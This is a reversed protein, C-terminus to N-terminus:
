PTTCTLYPNFHGQLITQDRSGKRLRQERKRQIGFKKMKTRLTSPNVGLLESAGGPGDIKGNTADLAAQIHLTIAEDLKKIKRNSGSSAQLGGLRQQFAFHGYTLHDNNEGWSQILAREVVNALERVNGPWHYEMLRKIDRPSFPRVAKVKLEKSKWEVFYRVLDPIDEKRQRLPPIMIPFVNLRFWLDERFKGARVMDELNRHTASMIRVDVPISTSGGVREIEKTQLVRLLRVQASLPLEGIEDLLITGKHAREFRGRSQTFAGTFAGKEHGFLESDVLTEPIAGCNIKIFPGNKRPSIDHILNAIVEKGVGTEGLLLVPSDIAAIQQVMRMVDKLGGDKGIVDEGTIHLLEKSLYQVDDTLQDKLNIVAEHKIANSMAIAFPDHLLSLYHSHKETYQNEGKAYVALIGLRNGEIRLRLVISSSDPQKIFQTMAKAIPDSDNRGFITVTDLLMKTWRHASDRVKKSLHSIRDFKVDDPYRTVHAITRVTLFDNSFLHLSMGEVPMISAMYEQCSNMAIEIDLNGCIRLTVHRFVENEDVPMDM